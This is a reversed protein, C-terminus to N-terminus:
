GYFPLVIKQDDTKKKKEKRKQRKKLFKHTEQNTKVTRDEEMKKMM